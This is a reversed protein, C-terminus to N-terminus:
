SRGQVLAIHPIRDEWDGTGFLFSAGAVLIVFLLLIAVRLKSRVPQVPTAEEGAQSFPDAAPQAIQDAESADRGALEAAAPHPEIWRRAGMAEMTKSMGAGLTFKERVLWGRQDEIEQRMSAVGSASVPMEDLFDRIKGDLMVLDDVIELAVRRDRREMALQFRVVKMTSARVLMLGQALEDIGVASNRPQGPERAISATAESGM